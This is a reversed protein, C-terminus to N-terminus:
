LAQLFDCGAEIRAIMEISAVTLSFLRKGLYPVKGFVYNITRWVEMQIRRIFM